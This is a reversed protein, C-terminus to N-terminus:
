SDIAPFLSWDDILPRQFSSRSPTCLVVAGPASAGDVFSSSVTAMAATVEGDNASATWSASFNASGCPLIVVYRNRDAMGCSGLFCTGPIATAM